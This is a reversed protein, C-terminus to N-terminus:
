FIKKIFADLNHLVISFFRILLNIDKRLMLPLIMHQIIRLYRKEIFIKFSVIHIQLIM